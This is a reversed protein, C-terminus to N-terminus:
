VMLDQQLKCMNGDLTPPVLSKMYYMKPDPSEFGQERSFVDANYHLLNLGCPRATAWDGCPHRIKLHLTARRM